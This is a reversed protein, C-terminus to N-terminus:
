PLIATEVSVEFTHLYDTDIRSHTLNHCRVNPVLGHGQRFHTAHLGCFLAKSLQYSDVGDAIGADCMVAVVCSIRCKALQKEITDVRPLSIGVAFELSKNMEQQILSPLSADREDHLKDPPLRDGAISLVQERLWNLFLDINEGKTANTRKAPIM